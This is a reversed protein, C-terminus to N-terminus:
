AQQDVKGGPEGAPAVAVGVMAPRLLRDHIKYGIQVVQVVTGPEATADPVQMMAQHLNPDLKEGMPDVPTIGAKEFAKQLERETLEVGTMLNDLEGQAERAQPPVADLARRLNDAVSLLDRAMGATAYKRADEVERAARRRTNETEAMARLLRDKLDAIEQELKSSATEAREATEAPAADPQKAPPEADNAAVPTDAEPPRGPNQEPTEATM